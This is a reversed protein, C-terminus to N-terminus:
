KGEKILNHLAEFSFDCEGVAALMPQRSGSDAAPTPRFVLKRKGKKDVHIFLINEIQSQTFRALKGPLDITHGIQIDNVIAWRSHAVVLLNVPLSSFLAIVKLTIGRSRAWDAGYAVQGFEKVDFENRAVEEAWDNVVDVTDIAVTQYPLEKKGAQAHLQAHIERLEELSAIDLVYAGEVYRAGRPELNLLLCEPWQAAFTTKGCKPAGFVLWSAQKPFGTESKHKKAPLEIGM